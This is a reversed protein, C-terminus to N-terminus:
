GRTQLWPRHSEKSIIENRFSGCTVACLSSPLLRIINFFHGHVHRSISPKDFKTITAGQHTHEVVRCHIIPLNIVGVIALIGAAKAATKTMLLM